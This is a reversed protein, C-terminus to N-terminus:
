FRKKMQFKDIKLANYQHKKLHQHRAVATDTSYHIGPCICEELTFLSRLHLSRLTFSSHPNNENMQQHAYSM